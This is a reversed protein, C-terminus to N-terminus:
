GVPFSLFGECFFVFVGLAAKRFLNQRKFSIEPLYDFPTRRRLHFRVHLSTSTSSLHAPLEESSWRSNKTKLHHVEAKMRDM